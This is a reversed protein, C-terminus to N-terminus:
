VLTFARVLGRGRILGAGGGGMQLNFSKILGGERIRGRGEMGGEERLLFNYPM